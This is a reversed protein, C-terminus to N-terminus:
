LRTGGRPSYRATNIANKRAASRKLSKIKAKKSEKRM